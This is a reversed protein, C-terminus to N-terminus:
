VALETQYVANNNYEPSVAKELGFNATNTVNNLLQKLAFNHNGTRFGLKHLELFFSKHGATKVWYSLFSYVMNKARSEIKESESVSFFIDFGPIYCSIMSGDKKSVVNFIADIKGKNIKIEIKSVNDM